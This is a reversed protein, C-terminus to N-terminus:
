PEDKSAKVIIDTLADEVKSVVVSTSEKKFLYRGVLLPPCYNSLDTVVGNSLAHKIRDYSLLAAAKGNQVVELYAEPPLNTVLHYNKLGAHILPFCERISISM